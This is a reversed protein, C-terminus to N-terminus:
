YLLLNQTHMDGSMDIIDDITMASYFYTAKTNSNWYAESCLLELPPTPIGNYSIMDGGASDYSDCLHIIFSIIFM